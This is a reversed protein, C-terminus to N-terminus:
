RKLSFHGQFEKGDEFAISFWYDSSPVLQGQFTGDWGSGNSNLQRILKGYRDYIFIDAQAMDQGAGTIQWFDNIGDGNPTFFKPFGIVAVEEEVIGCGNKDRVFVTYFGAEVDEFRNADQYTEGDLSFEYDGDGTVSVEITNDDNASDVVIEQFTARNSGNVVFDFSTTCTVTQGNTSFFTGVELQYDGSELISVIATNSVEVEQDATIRLWRYSDFVASAEIILPEGDTCVQYTDQLSVEPLPNVVLEFQEVGQCQNSNELRVYITTSVTRITGQLSNTELAVDDLSSYFAVDLNAYSSQRIIELDFTSEAAGNESNDDCSLIPSVINLSVLTPNVELVVEGLNECTDTTIRYYITQSFPSTNTYDEPNTIPIDNTRDALTQYYFVEFGNTDPFAQELNLRTIGDTSDTEDVDCQVLNVTAPFTASIVNLEIPFTIACDMLIASAVRAYIETSVSAYDNGTIRNTNTNASAEDPHLSVTFEMINGIGSEIEGIIQTVSFLEQGDRDSDCLTYSLDPAPDFDTPILIYDTVDFCGNPNTVRVFIDTAIGSFSFQTPDPIFNNNRDFADEFSTYYEIIANTSTTLLAPDRSIDIVSPSTANCVEINTLKNVEPPAPFSSTGTWELSFGGEGLPRDILIYYQEGVTAPISSIFGDGLAGPGENFDSESDRMGTLNSSLGAQMPNTTSCRLPANLNTCNTNPGYVYFDYDVEIDSSDPRITFSLTGTTAINVSLWLSNVEEFSCPNMSADLEQTGFGSVNSSITTNGCVEVANICDNPAQAVTYIGFFLLFLSLLIKM